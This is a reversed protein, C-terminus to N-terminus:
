NFLILEKTNQRLIDNINEIGNLMALKRLDIRKLLDINIPRKSDLFILSNIFERCAKSNLLDCIITAQEGSECPLFYCTDDLMIPKNDKCGVVSFVINKYFGSIAIKWTTFSYDGIGFVSFRSRKKYIISKRNDLKDSHKQLYDWTKPANEKISITNDGVRKQTVIVYKRPDHRQNGVDSSKLLPYIYEDELEIIEHLGNKYKGAVKELEMVKAADHKLGSRWGFNENGDIEKYMNYLDIDAVLEDNVIGIHKIKHQFTLNDYVTADKTKKNDGISTMLLCADVAVGFYKAADIKHISSNHIYADKNWFHRLVKRATSTKCLMAMCASSKQLSNILRILMWETIDFNSKGTKADFGYYKPRDGFEELSAKIFSGLGCTPEVIKSANPTITKVLRVVDHALEYPTQFDGFEIKKKAM